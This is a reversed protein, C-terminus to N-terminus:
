IRQHLCPRYQYKLNRQQLTMQWQQWHVGYDEAGEVQHAVEPKLMIYIESFNALGIFVLAVVLVCAVIKNIEFSDM